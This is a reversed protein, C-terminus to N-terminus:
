VGCERDMSNGFKPEDTIAMLSFALSSQQWKKKYQVYSSGYFSNTVQRDNVDNSSRFSHTALTAAKLAMNYDTVTTILFLWTSVRDTNYPEHQKVTNFTKLHRVSPCM